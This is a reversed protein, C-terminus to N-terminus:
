KWCASRANIPVASVDSTPPFPHHVPPALTTVTKVNTGPNQNKSQSENTSIRARTHQPSTHQPSTHQPSTHQPSTHQSRRAPAPCLDHWAPFKPGPTMMMMPM